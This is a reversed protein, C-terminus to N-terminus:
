SLGFGVGLILLVMWIAGGSVRRLAGHNYPDGTLVWLAIGAAALTLASLLESSAFAAYAAVFTMVATFRAAAANSRTLLGPMEIHAM